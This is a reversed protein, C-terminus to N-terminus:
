WIDGTVRVGGWTGVVLPVASIVVAAAAVVVDVDVDAM